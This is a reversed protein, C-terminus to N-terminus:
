PYRKVCCRMGARTGSPAPAYGMAIVASKVTRLTCTSYSPEGLIQHCRGLSVSTYISAMLSAGRARLAEYAGNRALIEHTTVGAVSALPNGIRTGMQFLAGEDAVKAKDFHAMIDARRVTASVLVVGLRLAPTSTKGDCPKM